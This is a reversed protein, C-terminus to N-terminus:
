HSSRVWTTLLVGVASSATSMFMICIQYRVADQIHVGALLQGVLMGPINILGMISLQTISPLMSTHITQVAVHRLAEKRSAGFSLKTEIILQDNMIGDICTSTSMAVSSMTNGLLMGLVPIFIVPEWFPTEALAYRIGIAGIVGNSIFLVLFVTPLLGLLTKQCRNFIIECTGLFVFGAVDSM